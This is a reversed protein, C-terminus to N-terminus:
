QPLPPQGFVREGRHQSTKIEESSYDFMEMEYNRIADDLSTNNSLSKLIHKCFVQADRFATNAGNGTPSMPHIADGIFTIRGCTHEIKKKPLSSRIKMASISNVDLNKFLFNLSPDCKEVIKLILNRLENQDLEFLDRDHEGGFKELKGVFVAYIYDKFGTISMDHCLSRAVIDLPQSFGMYDMMIVPGDDIATCTLGEFIVPHLL